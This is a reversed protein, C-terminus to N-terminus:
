QVMTLPDYLDTPVCYYTGLGPVWELCSGGKPCPPNGVCNDGCDESEPTCRLTCFPDSGKFTGCLKSECEFVFDVVCSSASQSGTANEKPPKCADAIAESQPLTCAGYEEPACAVSLSAITVALLAITWRDVRTTM